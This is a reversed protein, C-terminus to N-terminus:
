YKLTSMMLERRASALQERLTKEEIELIVSAVKVSLGALDVLALAGRSNKDIPSLAKSIPSDGKGAKSSSKTFHKWAIDLLHGKFETKGTKILVELDGSVEKFTATTISKADNVSLAFAYSTRYVLDAQSLIHSEYFNVTKEDSKNRAVYAGGCCSLKGFKTIIKPL